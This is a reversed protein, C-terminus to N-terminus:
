NIVLLLYFLKHNVVLYARRLNLKFKFLARWATAQRAKSFPWQVSNVCLAM